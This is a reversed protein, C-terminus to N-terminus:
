KIHTNQLKKDLQGFNKHCNKQTIPRINTNTNINNDLTFMDSFVSLIKKVGKERLNKISQSFNRPDFQKLM